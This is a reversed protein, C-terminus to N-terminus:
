PVTWLTVICKYLSSPHIKCFAKHLNLTGYHVHTDSLICISTLNSSNQNQLIYQYDHLKYHYKNDFGFIKKKM